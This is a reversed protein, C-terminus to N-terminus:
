IKAELVQKLVVAQNHQQDKASYVLTLTGKRAIQALEDLLPALDSRKLEASYRQQFQHWRAPDHNFFKRLEDSPGLDRMWKKIHAQEKKLGRPWLRDVLIRTGDGPSSADYARKIAIM